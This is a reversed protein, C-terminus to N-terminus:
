PLVSDLTNSESESTAVPICLVFAVTKASLCIRILWGYRFLTRMVLLRNLINHLILLEV